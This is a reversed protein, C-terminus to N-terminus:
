ALAMGPWQGTGPVRTRSGRVLGGGGGGGGGGLWGGGGGGKGAREKGLNGALDRDSSRGRRWRRTCGRFM